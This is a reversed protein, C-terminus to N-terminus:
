AQVCDNNFTCAYELECNGADISPNNHTERAVMRGERSVVLSCCSHAREEGPFSDNRRGARRIGDACQMGRGHDQNGNQQRNCKYAFCQHPGDIRSMVEDVLHSLRCRIACVTESRISVGDDAKVLQPWESDDFDITSHPPLRGCATM